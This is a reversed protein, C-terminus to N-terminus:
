EAHAPKVPNISAFGGTVAECVRELITEEYPRADPSCGELAFGASEGGEEGIDLVKLSTLNGLEAPMEGTFSGELELRGLNTLNGLEPPLEGALQNNTISLTQLNTLSGLEPPLEGTLRRDSLNLAAVRGDYGVSVGQWEGIPERSLWNHLDPKGWAQHLAILAETDGAHNEPACVPLKDLSNVYDRLFDSKCGELQNGEVSLTKLSLALDDLEPPLEGALQNNSLDLTSLNSLGALWSPIEGTLQNDALDLTELGVLRAMADPIEGTLQNGRLYLERLGALGDMEPPIEGCLRSDAIYLSRLATLNGLEPPLEGAIESDIITLTELNSLNGLEPPLEGDLQSDTITLTQLATLNGLEPPLEEGLQSGTISLTRLATLNGLEPPLKGSLGYLALGTVRGADADPVAPTPQAPVPTPALRPDGAPTGGDVAVGPWEGIPSFGGWTGSQDWTEGGTAEFLALLAEKDTEPSPAAPPRMVEPDPQRRPCVSVQVSTGLAAETPAPGGAAPASAGSTPEPTAGSSGSFMSRREGTPEPTATDRSSFISRREGTPEPTGPDSTVIGPGARRGTDEESGCAALLPLLVALALAFYGLANGFSARLMPAKM